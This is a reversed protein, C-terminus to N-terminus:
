NYTYDNVSHKFSLLENYICTVGLAVGNNVLPLTATLKGRVPGSDFLLQTLPPLCAQLHVITTFTSTMKELNM